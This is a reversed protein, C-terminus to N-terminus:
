KKKRTSRKKVVVEEVPKVEEKPKECSLALKHGARLYEEKREDAVRMKTGTLRNIFTVM